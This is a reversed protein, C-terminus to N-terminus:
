LLLGAVGLVGGLGIAAAAMTPAPAGNTTQQAGGAGGTGSTASAANSAASSGSTAGSMTTTPAASSANSMASTMSVMSTVSGVSTGSASAPPATSAASPNYSTTSFSCERVIDSVDNDLEGGNQTICAACLPIATNANQANCICQREAVDDNTSNDCDRTLTVVSACVDRCQMPVDDNDVDQALGIASLAFVIALKQFHM